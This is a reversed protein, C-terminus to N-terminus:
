EIMGAALMGAIIDSDSQKGHATAYAFATMPDVKLTYVEGTDKNTVTKSRILVGGVVNDLAEDSLKIRDAEKGM